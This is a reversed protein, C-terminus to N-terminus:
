LAEHVIECIKGLTQGVKERDAASRTHVNNVFMAFALRRGSSATLYGALAKSTLLEGGNMRNAWILTGTKALIKGRAPSEAPVARALTGDQGLVPFASEYVAFDPRGAMHRLLQVAARPTVFDAPDGGAGGGFSITEVDVGAQALFDHQRRLGEALTRQGHKAAILLPLTSAHLNHSVKMVLKVSESFPPSTLLAVRRFHEYMAPPPLREPRNVGLASAEVTVGARALSEILLSRALSPPDEVEHIRLLPKRGAAIQGRLVVRGASPSVVAVRTTGDTAVTIVQADVQLAATVPRWQVTAPQAPESPTITFDFLNDNVMIPTLRSPGSGSGEASDFLRDDILVDGRVRQIGAAAVQRALEDLGALPDQPTIEATEGYGAYIHDSNTFAIRGEGDTRGGLSLDGGAVLVLDGQLRGQSDVEGRAHIPTQFRHDAGLADLAAAVSFIKTVSAPAFLKDADLQYLTEGTRLDVLLLGWHSVQYPPAAIVAEIRKALTDDAAATCVPPGALIWFGTLLLLLHRPPHTTAPLRNM